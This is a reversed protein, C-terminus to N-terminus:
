TSLVHMNESSKHVKLVRLVADKKPSYNSIEKLNKNFKSHSKSKPSEMKDDEFKPNLVSVSEERENWEGVNKVHFNTISLDSENNHM